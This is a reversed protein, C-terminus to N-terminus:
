CLLCLFIFYFILIAVKNYKFIISLIGSSCLAGKEDPSLMNNASHPCKKNYYGDIYQFLSLKLEASSCYSRRNTEELKLYKFFSEAVVSDYPYGKASFSQV